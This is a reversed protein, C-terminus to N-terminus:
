PQALCREIRVLTGPKGLFELSQFIPPSITGGSLAIRLPQAINNLKLQKDTVYQNVTAELTEATWDSIGGLM